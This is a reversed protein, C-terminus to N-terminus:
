LECNYIKIANELIERNSLHANEISASSIRNLVEQTKTKYFHKELMKSFVFPLQYCIEDDNNSNHLADEIWDVYFLMYKQLDYFKERSYIDKKTRLAEIRYWLYACIGGMGYFQFDIDPKKMILSFMKQDLINLFDGPLVYNVKQFTYLIMNHLDSVMRKQTYSKKFLELMKESLQCRKDENSIITLIKESLQKSVDKTNVNKAYPIPVICEPFETLDELRDSTILPIGYKMMEIVTYSCQEHYSPLIGLTATAYLKDLNRHNMRGTFIVKDRYGECLPLFSNYDGNGVVYLKASPLAESVLKFANLVLKLGKQEDLRGVFLIKIEDEIGITTKYNPILKNSLGNRILHVKEQPIKYDNILVSKTKDSLVIVEDASNYAYKEKNFSSIVNADKPTKANQSAIIRKFQVYNGNLEFCWNQYHVTLIIRCGSYYERLLHMLPEHHVFNFHFVMNELKPIKQVILYYALKCYTAMNINNLAPIKYTAFGKKDKTCVFDETNASMEIISLSYDKNKLGEMTQRVYTGIGYQSGNCDNLILFYNIM